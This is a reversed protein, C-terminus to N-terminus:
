CTDLPMKKAIVLFFSTWSDFFVHDFLTRMKEWLTRYTGAKAKADRYYKCTMEMVQDILFALMMLICLNNSLFKKGHGYNHEFNYGLNKLTNFTENEIKWRARGGRMIQHANEKTIRINTVWSMNLEKGQRTTQRYELVNVKVDPHSKNLATNNLFYFQHLTGEEDQMEYYESKESNTLAEFLFKHDTPKAGLIYKLRHAELHKIHPANSALGDEVVIAKLHPHERRFHEILRKAANRECDNKEQGDRNVITEPCIPIINKKDPHVICAGLMQHYYTDIGISSTKKCLNECCVNSSAFQGTGDLALLYHGDMFVFDELSKNRQAKAFIKKFPERLLKTDLEDLRERLYTDSPTNQVHYLTKLNKEIATEKRSRDYSLLSPFKLGFIALGSMLHDVLRIRLNGSLKRPDKIKCFTQYVVNILSAADLSHTTSM